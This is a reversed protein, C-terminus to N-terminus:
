AAAPQEAAGDGAPKDGESAPKDGESAPKDGDSAPKDGESAPKDGESAPKPKDGESKVAEAGAAADGAGADPSDSPAAGDAAAKAGDKADASGAPAADAQRKTEDARTGTAIAELEEKTVTGDAVGRELADLGEAGLRGELSAREEATLVGDEMAATVDKELKASAAGDVKEQLTAIEENTATGDEVAKAVDTMGAENLKQALSTREEDTLVGDALAEALEGKLEAVKSPDVAIADKLFQLGKKAGDVFATREADEELFPNDNMGMLVEIFATMLQDQLAKDLRGTKPDIVPFPGGVGLQQLAPRSDITPSGPIDPTINAGSGIPTGISTLQGTGAGTLPGTDADNGGGAGANGGGNNKNEAKFQVGTFDLQSRLSAPLSGVHRNFNGQSVTVDPRLYYQRIAEVREPSMTQDGPPNWGILKNIKPETMVGPDLATHNHGGALLMYFMDPRGLQQSATAVMKFYADEGNNAGTPNGDQNNFGNFRGNGSTGDDSFALSFAWEAPIGMDMLNRYNGFWDASHHSRAINNGSVDKPDIAIDHVTRGSGPVQFNAVASRKAALEQPLDAPRDNTLGTLYNVVALVPSGGRDQLAVISNWDQDSLPFGPMGALDKIASLGTYSQIAQVYNQGPLVGYQPLHNADTKDIIENKDAQGNVNEGERGGYGPGGAQRYKGMSKAEDPRGVTLDMFRPDHAAPLQPDAKGGHNHGAGAGATGAAGHAHATHAMGTTMTGTTIM